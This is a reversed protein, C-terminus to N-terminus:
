LLTTVDEHEGLAKFIANRDGEDAVRVALRLSSYKGGASRNSVDLHHARDGVVQGIARRLAGEDTGIVKFVWQCPYIVQPKDSTPEEQM